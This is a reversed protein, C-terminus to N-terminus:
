DTEPGARRRRPFRPLLAQAQDRFRRDAELSEILVDALPGTIRSLRFPALPHRRKEAYVALVMVEATPIGADHYRCIEATVDIQQILTGDDTRLTVTWDLYM